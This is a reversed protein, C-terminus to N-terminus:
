VFGPKMCHIWDKWGTRWIGGEEVTLFCSVKGEQQNRHYEQWSGAFAAKEEHGKLGNYFLETMKLADQYHSGLFPEDVWWLYCAFFQGGYGAGALREVDIQCENKWVTQSKDGLKYLDFMKMLTDCHFDVYRM